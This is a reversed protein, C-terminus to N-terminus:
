QYIGKYISYQIRKEDTEPQFPCNRNLLQSIIICLQEKYTDLEYPQIVSNCDNNLFVIQKQWSKLPQMGARINHLPIQLDGEHAMLSYCLIQNLKELEPNKHIQNIKSSNLLREEVKGTKYDIIETFGDRIQVRDANGKLKITYAKNNVNVQIQSILDVELATITIKSHKIREKDTLIAQRVLEYSAHKMLYNMGRKTDGQKYEQAYIKDVEQEVQPLLADLFSNTLQTNIVPKYLNELVQHVITGFTSTEINSEMQVPEKIGAIKSFYFDLPSQVLTKLSSPSLYAKELYQEIQAFVSDDKEIKYTKEPELNGSQFQATYYHFPVTKEIRPNLEAELQKVFRSVEGGGLAGELGNYVFTIQKAQHLLRYFSYAYIADKDKFTQIKFHDKFIFPIFSTSNKGKPLTGENCGLVIVDDFDLARTELVGMIQLGELPEGEYPIATSKCVQQFVSRFASISTPVPYNQYLSEFQQIIKKIEFLVQVQIRQEHYKSRLKEILQHFRSLVTKITGKQNLLTTLFHQAGLQEELRSANLYSVNNEVLYHQLKMCAGDDVLQQLFPSLLVSKLLSTPYGIEDQNEAASFLKLLHDFLHVMSFQYISKGMTVNVKGINKPLRYLLPELLNEDGLIIATKENVNGEQILKQILQAAIDCQAILNPSQIIDIKNTNYGINKPLNNLGKDQLWREKYARFYQGAKNENDSIYYEDIDWFFEGYNQEAVYDFLSEEAKNLANFAVFVVYDSNLRNFHIPLNEVAYRYALGNYAKGENLLHTTFHNYLEKATKWFELYNIQMDTLGNSINWNRIERDHYLTNFFVETPILNTDIESCDSLFTTGWSLFRDFTHAEKTIAQHSQYLRFLQEIQEIKQLGSMEFFLDEITQVKPLFIPRNIQTSLEQKLFLGARNNPLVVRLNRYNEQLELVRKAVHHLFKM